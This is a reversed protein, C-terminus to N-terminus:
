RQSIVHQSGNQLHSQLMARGVVVLVVAVVDHDLLFDMRLEASKWRAKRARLAEWDREREFCVWEMGHFCTV